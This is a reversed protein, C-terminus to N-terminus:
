IWGNDFYDYSLMIDRYDMWYPKTKVGPIYDKMQVRWGDKSLCVAEWGDNFVIRNGPKLSKLEDRTM